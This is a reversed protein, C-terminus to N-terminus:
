ASTTVQGGGQRGRNRLVNLRGTIVDTPLDVKLPQGLDKFEVTMRHLRIIDNGQGARVVNIARIAEEATTNKPLKFGAVLDRLKSGIEIREQVQVVRGDRVYVVMKRFHATEPTAQNATGGTQQARPLSPPKLDYRVTPSHKKPKPFPDESSKYVPELTDESYKRVVEARDVAQRVYELVTLGDVVPDQGQIRNQTGGVGGLIQPAGTPDLVWHRTSLAQLVVAPPALDSASTGASTQTSPLTSVVGGGATALFLPLVSPDSFRTAYADDSAVEEDVQQGNITLGAKFRFDDEVLGVVQIRAATSTDAYAFKRSLRETRDIAAKVELKKDKERKCSATGLAIVILVVVLGISRRRMSM